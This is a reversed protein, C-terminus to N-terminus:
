PLRCSKWKQRQIKLGENGGGGCALKCRNSVFFIFGVLVILLLLHGMDFSIEQNMM